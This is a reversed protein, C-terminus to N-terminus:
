KTNASVIPTYGSYIRHETGDADKYYYYARVRYYYTSGSKLNTSVKSATTYRGLCAGPTKNPDDLRWVEYFISTGNVKNWSLSISDKTTATVKLGTPADVKPMASVVTSYGSYIKTGNSLKKYSRLKYYYTKNPTLAKSISKGDSAYYTGLLVYDSQQANAKHTRWVQVFDTNPAPTWSIDVTTPSSAKAKVNSPASVKVTPTATPKKTPTNTPKKTPTNTPKKTPTNTPTPTAKAIKVKNAVTKKDAKYVNKADSGLNGDKPVLIGLRNSLTIKGNECTIASYDTDAEAEVSKVSPGFSLSTETHIANGGSSKLNLTGGDVVMAHASLVDGRENTINFVSNEAIHMTGGCRFFTAPIVTNVTGTLTIDGSSEFFAFDEPLEDIYDLLDVFWSDLLDFDYFEVTKTQPKYKMKGQTSWELTSMSTGYLGALMLDWKAYEYSCTWAPALPYVRGGINRVLTMEVDIMGEPVKQRELVDYLYFDEPEYYVEFLQTGNQSAKIKYGYFEDDFDAKVFSYEDMTVNVKPEYSFEKQEAFVRNGNPYGYRYKAVSAKYLNTGPILYDELDFYNENSPNRISEPKWTQGGDDSFSFRVKYQVQNDADRDWVLRTGSWHLNTPESLKEGLAVYEFTRKTEKSIQGSSDYAYVSVTAEGSGFGEKRLIEGFDKELPGSAGVTGQRAGEETRVTVSYGKAGELADWTLVGEASVAVNPIEPLEDGDALVRGSTGGFLGTPLVSLFMVFAAFASIISKRTRM